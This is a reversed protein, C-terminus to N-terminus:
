GQYQPAAPIAPTAVYANAPLIATEGSGPANTQNMGGAGLSNGGAPGQNQSGGFTTSVGSGTGVSDATAMSEHITRGPRSDRTGVNTTLVNAPCAGRSVSAMITDGSSNNSNPPFLGVGVNVPQLTAGAVTNGPTTGQFPQMNAVTGGPTGYITIHIEV